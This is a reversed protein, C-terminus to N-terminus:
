GVRYQRVKYNNAAALNAVLSREGDMICTACTGTPTEKDVMYQVQTPVNSHRNLRARSSSIGTRGRHNARLSQTAPVACHSQPVSDRSHSPAGHMLCHMAPCILHLCRRAYRMFLCHHGTVAWRKVHRQACCRSV